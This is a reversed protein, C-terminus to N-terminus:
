YILYGRIYKVRVSQNPLVLSDMKSHKTIYLLYVPIGKLAFSM